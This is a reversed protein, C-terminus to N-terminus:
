TKEVGRELLRGDASEAIFYEHNVTLSTLLLVMMIIQHNPASLQVNALSTESLSKVACGYSIKAGNVFFFNYVM